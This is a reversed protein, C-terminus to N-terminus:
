ASSLFTAAKYAVQSVRGAIETHLTNFMTMTNM